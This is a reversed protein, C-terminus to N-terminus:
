IRSAFLSAAAAVLATIVSARLGAATGAATNAGPCIEADTLFSCGNASVQAKLTTLAEGSCCVASMSATMCKGTEKFQKCLDVATGITAAKLANQGCTVFDAGADQRATV